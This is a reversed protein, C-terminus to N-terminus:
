DPNLSDPQRSVLTPHAGFFAIEAIAHNGSTFRLVGLRGDPPVGESRAAVLAPVRAEGYETKANVLENAARRIVSTTAKLIAERGEKRFFGTGLAEAMPRSDYGGFSSHSHTPLLWLQSLGVDSVQARIQETLRESIALLDMS